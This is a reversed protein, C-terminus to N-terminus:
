LRGQQVKTPVPGSVFREAVGWETRTTVVWRTGCLTLRAQNGGTQGTSQMKLNADQLSCAVFKSRNLAVGRCGGGAEREPKGSEGVRHMAFVNKALNIGINIIVM